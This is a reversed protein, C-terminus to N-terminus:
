ESEVLQSRSEILLEALQADDIGLRQQCAAGLKEWERTLSQATAQQFLFEGMQSIAILFASKVPTIGTPVDPAIALADHHYRVAEVIEAPLGWSQTMMAGVHAHSVPMVSEERETFSGSPDANAQRLVDIYGPMRQLLVAIGCDRFLGFTYAEDPRMGPWRNVQVLWSSLSAIQSSADWFRDYKPDPFAARLAVCAVVQAVVRLGLVQMAELVTRVRRQLGFAPANATKIIGAAIAVDSRLARELVLLEPEDRAMECAIMELISPRPPIGTARLNSEFEAIDITVNM